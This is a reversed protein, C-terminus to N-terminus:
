RFGHEMSFQEMLIGSRYSEEFLYWTQPPPVAHDNGMVWSYFTCEHHLMACFDRLGKFKANHKWRDEWTRLSESDTHKIFKLLREQLNELNRNQIIARDRAVKVITQKLDGYFTFKPDNFVMEIVEGCIIYWNHWLCISLQRRAVDPTNNEAEGDGGGRVAVRYSLLIERSTALADM